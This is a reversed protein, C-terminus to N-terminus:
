QNYYPNKYLIANGRINQNTDATYVGGKNDIYLTKYQPYVKLTDEVWKELKANTNEPARENDKKETSQEHPTSPNQEKDKDITPQLGKDTSPMETNNENTPIVANQEQVEEETKKPRAM